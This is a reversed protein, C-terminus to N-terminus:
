GVGGDASKKPEQDVPPLDDEVGGERIPGRGGGKGTIAQQVAEGILDYRRKPAPPFRASALASFIERIRRTLGV